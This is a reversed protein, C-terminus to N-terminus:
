VWVRIARNGAKLELQRRGHRKGPWPDGDVHTTGTTTLRISHGRGVMFADADGEGTALWEAFTEREAARVGVVTLLAVDPSEHPALRLRPGYHSLNMCELLLYEDEAVRGDIETFIPKPRGELVERAMRRRMGLLAVPGASKRTGTGTGMIRAFAGTGAAELFQRSEGFAQVSALHVIRENERWCAVRQALDSRSFGLSYAVNNASGTPLIAIPTDRMHLAHILRHVTGDGGAAVFADADRELAPRWKGKSSVIEPEHGSERLLREVEDASWGGGGAGPNHIVILKM